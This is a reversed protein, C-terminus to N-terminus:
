VINFVQDLSLVRRVHASFKQSIQERIASDYKLSGILVVCDKEKLLVEPPYIRLGLCTEGQKRTDTDIFFDISSLEFQQAILTQAVMGAAWVIVKGEAYEHRACICNSDLYGMDQKNRVFQGRWQLAEGDRQIKLTLKTPEIRAEEDLGVLSAIASIVRQPKRVLAEYSIQLPLLDNRAFFARWRAEDRVLENLCRQIHREDYAIAGPRSSPMDISRWKDTQQAKVYSLAQGLIDNRRLYVFAVNPLDYLWNPYALPGFQLAHIKLGYVANSTAGLELCQRLRAIPDDLFQPLGSLRLTEANFYELPRGLVGTSSLLDCLYSSGSRPTTCIVYGRLGETM